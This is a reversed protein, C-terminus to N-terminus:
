PKGLVPAALEAYLAEFKRATQPMDFNERCLAYGREGIARRKGPDELLTTLAESWEKASFPDLLVGDQWDHFVESNCGVGRSIVVPVKMSLAELIAISHLELFSPLLMVDSVALLERTEPYFGIFRLNKELGEKRARERYADLMPGDGAALFLVEPFRAAVVPAVGFLLDLNKVKSMRVPTLLVPSGPSIDLKKRLGEGSPVPEDLPIGNRILRVRDPGYLRNKLLFDANQRTLVVVRDSQGKLRYVFDFQKVFSQGEERDEKEIYRFDHVHEILKAGSLRAAILGLMHGNFNHTHIVRIHHRRVYLLTRIVAFFTEASKFKHIKKSYKFLRIDARSFLPEFEGGYCYGVHNRVAGADMARVLNYLNREAGGLRLTQILHLVDIM